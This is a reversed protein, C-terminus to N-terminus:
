DNCARGRAHTDGEYHSPPGDVDSQECAPLEVVLLVSLHRLPDDAKPVVLRARRSCALTHGYLSHDCVVYVGCVKCPM